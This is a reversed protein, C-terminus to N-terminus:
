NVISPVCSLLCYQRFMYKGHPVLNKRTRIKAIRAAKKIIRLFLEQLFYNGGFYVGSAFNYMCVECPAQQQWKNLVDRENLFLVMFRSIFRESIFFFPKGSLITQLYEMSFLMRCKRMLVHRLQSLTVSIVLNSCRWM